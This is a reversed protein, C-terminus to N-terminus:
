MFWVYVVLLPSLLAQRRIARLMDTPVDVRSCFKELELAGMNASGGSNQMLLLQRDGYFASSGFVCLCGFITKPELDAVVGYMYLFM